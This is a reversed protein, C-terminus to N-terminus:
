LERKNCAFCRCFTEITGCLESVTLWVLLHMYFDMFIFHQQDVFSGLPSYRRPLRHNQIIMVNTKAATNNIFCEILLRLISISRKKM